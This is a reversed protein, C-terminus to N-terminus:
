IKPLFKYKKAVVLRQYIKNQVIKFLKKYLNIIKVKNRKVKKNLQSKKNWQNNNTIIQNWAKEIKIM